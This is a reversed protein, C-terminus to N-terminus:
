KGRFKNKCIHYLFLGAAIKMQAKQEKEVSFIDTVSFRKSKVGLGSIVKVSCRTKIERSLNPQWSEKGM